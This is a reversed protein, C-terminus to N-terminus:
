HIRLAVGGAGLLLALLALPVLVAACRSAVRERLAPAPKLRLWSLVLLMPLAKALLFGLGVLARTPGAAVAQEVGFFTHGGLFLATALLAAAASAVRDILTDARDTGQYVAVWFVLFALPGGPARFLNWWRNQAEVISGVEASGTLALVTALALIAAAPAGVPRRGLLAGFFGLSALAVAFLAGAPVQAVVLPIRVGAIELPEGFPVVAVAALALAAHLVAAPTPPEAGARRRAILGACAALGLTLGIALFAKVLAAGLLLTTADGAPM